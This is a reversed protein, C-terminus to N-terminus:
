LIPHWNKLFLSAEYFMIRMESCLTDEQLRKQDALGLCCVGNIGTAQDPLM